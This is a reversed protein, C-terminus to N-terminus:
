KEGTAVFDPFLEGFFDQMEAWSRRDAKENYAVGKSPDNGADPNTFAHVAHGYAVMYWDAKAQNLEDRLAALSEDSVHPDASGHLVLVKPQITPSTPVEGIELGGHFSVVGLVDSNSRALELVTTGGFCFGIAATQAGNVNPQAKLQELAANVRRRMLARDGKVQGSWEGAEAADKTVRGEGYMDAVFAVYGMDALMAARSTVYDNVGWYEPIVLVGPRKEARDSDVALVGKYSAGDIKYEVVSTTTKASVSATIAVGTAFLLFRKM